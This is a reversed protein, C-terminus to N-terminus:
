VVIVGEKTFLGQLYCNSLIAEELIGMLYLAGASKVWETGAIYRCRRWIRQGLRALRTIMNTASLADLVQWRVKEPVSIDDTLRRSDAWLLPCRNHRSAVPQIRRRLVGLQTVSLRSALLRDSEPHDFSQLVDMTATVEQPSQYWLIEPRVLRAARFLTRISEDDQDRDCRDTSWALNVWDWRIRNIKQADARTLVM